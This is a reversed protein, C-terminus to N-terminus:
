GIFRPVAVPVFVVGNLMTMAMPRIQMVPMIM